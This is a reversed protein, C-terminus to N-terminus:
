GEYSNLMKGPGGRIGSEWAFKVQSQRGIRKRERWYCKTLGKYYNDGRGQFVTILTVMKGLVERGRERENEKNRM